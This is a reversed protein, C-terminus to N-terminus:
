AVAKGDKIGPTGHGRMLSGNSGHIYNKIPPLYVQVNSKHFLQGSRFRSAFVLRFQPGPVTRSQIGIVSAALYTLYVM